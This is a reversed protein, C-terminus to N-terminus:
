VLRILFCSIEFVEKRSLVSGKRGIAKTTSLAEKRSFGTENVNFIREPKDILESKELCEKLNNFYNEVRDVNFSDDHAAKRKPKIFSLTPHRRMFGRFWNYGPGTRVNLRSNLKGGDRKSM